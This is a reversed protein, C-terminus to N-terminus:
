PSSRAQGRLMMGRKCSELELVVYMGSVWYLFIYDVVKLVWMRLHDYVCAVLSGMAGVVSMSM